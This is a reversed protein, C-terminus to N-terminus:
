GGGPRTDIGKPMRTFAFCANSLCSAYSRSPLLEDEDPRNSAELESSSSSRGSAGARVSFVFSCIFLALLCAHTAIVKINHQLSQTPRILGTSIDELFATERFRCTTSTFVCTHM